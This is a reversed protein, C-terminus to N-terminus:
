EIQRLEFRRRGGPDRFFANFVTVCRDQQDPTMAMFTALFKEPLTAAIVRAVNEDFRGRIKGFVNEEGIATM